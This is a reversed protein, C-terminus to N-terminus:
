KNHHVFKRQIHNLIPIKKLMQEKDIILLLTIVYLPTIPIRYRAISGLVPTLVGILVSLVLVFSIATALYIYTKADPKKFFIIGLVTLALLFTNEIASILILISKSELLHPRFLTNLIAQPSNKILSYITPKLYNIDFYSGANLSLATHIFGQQKQHLFWIVDGEEHIFYTHFGISFLICHVITCKLFLQNYGTAKVVFLSIIAPVLAAFVYMKTMVLLLAALSFLLYNKLKKKQDHLAQFLYYFLFGLAFVIIAEKLVGSTWFVVSPILFVAICLEKPKDTMIPYFTKYLAVLGCLSIFCMFITHVHYNGFSFLYIMANLQIIISNDHFYAGAWPAYWHDMQEYYPKLYDANSNLGLVMEIYHLPHNPLAAYIYKADDYFKYIDSTSRDTYYFTYIAWLLIGFLVKVVFLQSLTKSSIGQLQFFPLRRILFIFIGIYLLPLIVQSIIL